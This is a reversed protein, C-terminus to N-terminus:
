FPSSYLEANSKHGGFAVGMTGAMAAFGIAGVHLNNGFVFDGLSPGSKAAENMENELEKLLEGKNPANSELM